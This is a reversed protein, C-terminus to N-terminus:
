RASRAASRRKWPGAAMVMTADASAAVVAAAWAAAAYSTFADGDAHLVSTVGYSGLEAVLGSPGDGVVLAQVDDGLRRAFTLTERRSNSRKEMLM